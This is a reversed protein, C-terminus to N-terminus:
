LHAQEDLRSVRQILPRIRSAKLPVKAQAVPPFPSLPTGRRQSVDEAGSVDGPLSRCTGLGLIKGSVM